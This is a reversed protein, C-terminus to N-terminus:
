ELKELVVKASAMKSPDRSYPARATTVLLRNGERRWLRMVQTGNWSENWSVDVTAIIRDGELRYTGGYAILTDWLAAREETSKGFKRGEATTMSMVRTPTFIVMGKPEKGFNEIPPQGDVELVFSVLRYTGVISDQALAQVSTLSAFLLLAKIWRM